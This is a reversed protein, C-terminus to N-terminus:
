ENKEVVQEAQDEEESTAGRQKSVSMVAVDGAQTQAGQLATLVVSEPLILDRLHVVDGIQITAVDIAIFEPLYQPLCTIEVEVMHHNIIGGQQKVGICQDENLFHIPVQVVVRTKDSIRQFDVHLIRSKLPHRQLEKLIVREKEGELAIDIIQSHFSEDTTAKLLTKYEFSIPQPAREAGYLIGPVRGQRRLLRSESSGLRNRITASLEM